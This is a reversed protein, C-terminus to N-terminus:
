NTRESAELGVGLRSEAKKKEHQHHQFLQVIWSFGM